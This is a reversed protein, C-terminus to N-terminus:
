GGHDDDAVELRIMEADAQVVRFSTGANLLVEFQRYRHTPFPHVYACGMQGRRVLLEVVAGQDNRAITAAVGASVSTSALSEARVIDGRVHGRYDDAEAPGVGRHVVMADLDGPDVPGFPQPM